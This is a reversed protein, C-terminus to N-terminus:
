LMKEFRNLNFNHEWHETRMKEPDYLITKQARLSEIVMKAM